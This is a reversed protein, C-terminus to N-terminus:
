WYPSPCTASRIAKNAAVIGFLSALVLWISLGSDVKQPLSFIFTIVLALTLGSARWRNGRFMGFAVMAMLFFAGACYAFGLSPVPGLVRKKRLDAEASLRGDVYIRAYRGDYVAAVFTDRGTELVSPTETEPGTGNPAIAPTRLRFVIDGRQQSVLFNSLGANCSYTIMRAGRQSRDATRVWLLVSLQNRATAQKFLETSESQPLFVASKETSVTDRQEFVPTAPYDQRHRSAAGLDEGALTQILSPAVAAPIVEAELIEGRWRREGTVEDGFALRCAPDWNNFDGSVPRPILATACLVGALLGIWGTSEPMHFRALNGGFRRLGIAILHGACAGLVNSIVDAVGPFRTPSVFQELEVCVSIVLALFFIRRFSGTFVLGLPLYLLINGVIDALNLRTYLMDLTPSRFGLPIATLALIGGLVLPFPQIVFHPSPTDISSPM